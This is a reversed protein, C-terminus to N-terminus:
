GRYVRISNGYAEPYVRCTDHSKWSQSVREADDRMDVVRAM